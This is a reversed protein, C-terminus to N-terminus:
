CCLEFQIKPGKCTICVGQGVKRKNEGPCSLECTYSHASRYQTIENPKQAHTLKGHVRLIGKNLFLDKSISLELSRPRLVRAQATVKIKGLHLKFRIPSRSNWRTNPIEVRTLADTWNKYLRGSNFSRPAYVEFGLRGSESFRENPDFESRYRVEFTAM